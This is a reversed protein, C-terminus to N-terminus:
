GAAPMDSTSFSRKRPCVPRDARDAGELGQGLVRVFGADLHVDQIKLRILESVRLGAAYLVELM